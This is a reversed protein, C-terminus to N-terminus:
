KICLKEFTRWNYIFSRRAKRMEFSWTSGQVRLVRVDSHMFEMSSEICERHYQRPSKILCDLAEQAPTWKRVVKLSWVTNRRVDILKSWRFCQFLRRLLGQPLPPPIPFCARSSLLPIPSLPSTCNRNNNRNLYANFSQQANEATERFFFYASPESRVLHGTELIHRRM